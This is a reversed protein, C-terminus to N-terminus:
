FMLFELADLHLRNRHFDSPKYGVFTLRQLDLENLLGAIKTARAIPEMKIKELYELAKPTGYKIEPGKTLIEINRIARESLGLSKLDDTTISSEEILAHGICVMKLTWGLIEICEKDDYGENAISTLAEDFWPYGASIVSYMSIVNAEIDKLRQFDKFEKIVLDWLKEYDGKLKRTIPFKIVKPQPKPEEQREFFQEIM